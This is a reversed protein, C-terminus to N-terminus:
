NKNNFREFMSYAVDVNENEISIRNKLCRHAMDIEYDDYRSKYGFYFFAIAKILGDITFEYYKSICNRIDYESQYEGAILLSYEDMIRMCDAGCIRYVDWGMDNLNKDRKADEEARDMHWEKGDCEIAVKTAPNGFDVFYKGVPYQPYMPAKGFSRLAYWTQMEIPSFMTTWSIESYPNVWGNIFKYSREMILPTLMEYHKRIDAFPYISSM